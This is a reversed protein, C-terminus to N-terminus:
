GEELLQLPRDSYQIDISICKGQNFVFTILSWDFVKGTQENLVARRYDLMYQGNQGLSRGEPLGMLKEVEIQNKGLALYELNFKKYAKNELASEKTTSNQNISSFKEGRCGTITCLCVITITPLINKHM